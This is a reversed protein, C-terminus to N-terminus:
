PDYRSYFGVCSFTGQKMRDCARWDCFYARKYLRFFDEGVNSSGVNGLIGKRFKKQIEWRPMDAYIFLDPDLCLLSAGLGIAIKVGKAQRWEKRMKNLESDDFYVELSLDNMRGFIRDETLFPELSNM